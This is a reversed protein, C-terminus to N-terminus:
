TGQNSSTNDRTTMLPCEGWMHSGSHVTFGYRESGPHIPCDWGHVQSGLADFQGFIGRKALEHVEDGPASGRVISGWLGLSEHCRYQGAVCGGDRSRRQGVDLGIMVALNYATSWDTPNLEVAVRWANIAGDMDGREKLFDGLVHQARALAAAADVPNAIVGECYYGEEAAKVAARFSAEAGDLDCVDNIGTDLLFRGLAVHAEVSAPTVAVAARLAAEKTKATVTFKCHAKHAKWHGTQCDRGCYRVTKCRSCLQKAHPAHCSACMHAKLTDGNPLERGERIRVIEQESHSRVNDHDHGSRPPCAALLQELISAYGRKKEAIAKDAIQAHWEAKSLKSNLPQRRTQSMGIIQVFILSRYSARCAALTSPHTEPQLVSSMMFHRDGGPPPADSLAFGHALLMTVGAVDLQTAALALACLGMHEQVDKSSLVAPHKLLEAVVEGHHNLKSGAPFIQNYIANMLPTYGDTPAAEDAPAGAALGRRVMAADGTLCFNRLWLGAEPHNDENVHEQADGAAATTASGAGGVTSGGKKRGKKRPM